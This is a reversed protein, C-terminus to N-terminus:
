DGAILHQGDGRTTELRQRAGELRIILQIYHETGARSLERPVDVGSERLDHIWQLMLFWRGPIAHERLARNLGTDSTTLLRDLTAKPVGQELLWVLVAHAEPTSLSGSYRRETSHGSEPLKSGNTTM